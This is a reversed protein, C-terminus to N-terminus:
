SVTWKGKRLVKQSSVSIEARNRKGCNAEVAEPKENTRVEDSSAGSSSSSSCLTGQSSSTVNKSSSYQAHNQKCSEAGRGLSNTNYTSTSTNPECQQPVQSSLMALQQIAVDRLFDLRQYTNVKNANATTEYEDSDDHVKFRNMM